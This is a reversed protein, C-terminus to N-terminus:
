GSVPRSSRAPDAANRDTFINAAGGHDAEGPLRRRDFGSGSHPMDMGLEAPAGHRQPLFVAAMMGVAVAAAPEAVEADDFPAVADGRGDPFGVGRALLQEHGERLSM